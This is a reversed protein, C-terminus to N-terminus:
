IVQTRSETRRDAPKLIDPLNRLRWKRIQLHFSEILRLEMVWELM